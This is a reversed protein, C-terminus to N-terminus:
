LGSVSVVARVGCDNDGDISGGSDFLYNTGDDEGGTMYHVYFKAYNSYCYVCPSALWYEENALVGIDDSSLEKLYYTNKLTVEKEESDIKVTNGSEDVFVQDKSTTYNYTYPQNYNDGKDSDEMGALAEIDEINISRALSIGTKEKVVANLSNVVNKYSWISRELKEESTPETGVISIAEIARPDDHGLTYNSVASTSVLKANGNEDTGIKTWTGNYIGGTEGLAELVEKNSYVNESDVKVKECTMVLPESETGDEEFFIITVDVDTKNENMEVKLRAEVGFIEETGETFDIEENNIYKSEKANIRFLEYGYDSIILNGDELFILTWDGLYETNTDVTLGVDKWSFAVPENGGTKIETESVIYNYKGLKGTITVNPVSGEVTYKEKMKDIIEQANIKGDDTIEMMALMEELIAKEETARTATEAKEFLGGNLAVNITVGVLILMVIITIILAILTIGKNQAMEEFRPRSSTAGVANANLKKRLKQM